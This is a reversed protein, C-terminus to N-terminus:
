LDVASAGALTFNIQDVRIVKGPIPTHSSLLFNDPVFYIENGSFFGKAFGQNLDGEVAKM